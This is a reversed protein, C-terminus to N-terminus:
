RVPVRVYVDVIVADDVHSVDAYGYDVEVFVFLFLVCVCAEWIKGCPIKREEGVIKVYYVSHARNRLLFKQCFFSLFLM